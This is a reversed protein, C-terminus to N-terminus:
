EKESMTMVVAGAGNTLDLTIVYEKEYNIPDTELPDFNGSDSLKVLDSQWSAYNAGQFEGGWGKQYFFKLSFGAILKTTVQYIKDGTKAMCLGRDTNWNINNSEPGPKGAGWGILWIANGDGDFTSLADGNMHEVCFYKLSTDLTVRYKGTAPLFKLTGDDNLEFYDPDIWQESLNVGGVEISQNQTLNKEVKMQTDSIVSMEEGAFTIPEAFPSAEYTLTNFTVEYVGSVSNTFTISATTGDTVTGSSSGWTMQNKGSAIEAETLDPSKIYAKFTQPLDGSYAYQYRAVRDMTYEQDDETVLVLHQYDPRSLPLDASEEVLGFEINQATFTVTATGNPVNQYYPAKIKGTYTGNTKTRLTTESVEDEGYYLKVKLTSLPTEDTIAASFTVSDSFEASSPLQIDMLSPITATKDDDDCSIMGIACLATILYIKWNKM